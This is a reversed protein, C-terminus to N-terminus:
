GRRLGEILRGLAEGAAGRAVEPEEARGVLLAAEEIAAARQRGARASRTTRPRRRRASRAASPAVTSAGAIRRGELAPHRGDGEIGAQPAVAHPHERAQVGAMVPIRQGGQARELAGHEQGPGRAVEQERHAEGLAKGGIQRVGPDDGSARPRAKV